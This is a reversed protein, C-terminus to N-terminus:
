LRYDTCAEVFREVAVTRPQDEGPVQVLVTRIVPSHNKNGSDVRGRANLPSLSLAKVRGLVKVRVHADKPGLIIIAERGPPPVIYKM